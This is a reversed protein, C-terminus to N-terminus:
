RRRPLTLPALALAAAALFRVTRGYPTDRLRLNALADTVVTTSSLSAALAVLMAELVSTVTGYVTAILVGLFFLTLVVLFGAIATEHSITAATGDGVLGRSVNYHRSYMLGHGFLLFISGFQAFTETQVVERILNLCSPGILMGGLM